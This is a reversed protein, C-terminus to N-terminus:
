LLVGNEDIPKYRGLFMAMYVPLYTINGEERIDENNSLVVGKNIGYDKIEMLRKLASHVTYDKGSKVEIPLVSLSQQNDILFDVEGNKKNDYYFLKHGYCKLEMAVVCEYVAGLNVSKITDLLPKINNGYLQSTLIGVDNLYLKLLDKQVTEALPYKPNSIARVALTIGSDILYDIDDAYERSRTGKKDEIDKFVLRKKEKALVSPLMEYIRKIRLKYTQDYKSADDAYLTHIDRQVERIKQVNRSDLFENVADPMGGTILYRRFLDMINKHVAKNPSNLRTFCDELYDRTEKRINNAIMFEEFSLPYMEILRISGIPISTTRRLTIGLLSGSAIYSFRNDQRLFKLLTLLQPYEQIEDIFILTSRPNAPLDGVIAGLVLYFEEISRVNEFNKPGQKDEVMNLEIFNSFLQTGIHRIIFSKGVQRAGEVVMIKTSDSQLHAKIESSINRYLM